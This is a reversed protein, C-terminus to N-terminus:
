KGGLVADSSLVLKDKFSLITPTTGLNRVTQQITVEQGTVAVLLPAAHDQAPLRLTGARSLLNLPGTPSPPPHAGVSVTVMTLDVTPLLRAEFQEVQLSTRNRKKAPSHKKKM